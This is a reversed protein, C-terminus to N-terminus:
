KDLWVTELTVGMYMNPPLHGKVYPWWVYRGFMIPYRIITHESLIASEIQQTIAARKTIDPEAAQKEWLTDVTPNSFSLFNTPSATTFGGRLGDPDGGGGLQPMNGLCMDFKKGNLEQVFSASELPRIEYKINLYKKWTEALITEANIVSQDRYSPIYIDFGQPYYGAERMLQQADVIRQEMPKDWGMIRSVVDPPNSYPPLFIGNNYSYVVSDTAYHAIILSKQDALMVMARRVREDRLPAVGIPNIFLSPAMASPSRDFVLTPAQDKLLKMHDETRIGNPDCIDLRNAIIAMVQANQDPMTM